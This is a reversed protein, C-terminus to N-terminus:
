QCSKRLDEICANIVNVVKDRLVPIQHLNELKKGSIEIDRIVQKLSVINMSDITSKMKHAAKWTAEWDQSNIATNLAEINLPMNDIFLQVMMRLFGEDGGGIQKLFELNYLPSSSSETTPLQSDGTTPLRYDTIPTPKVGVLTYKVLVANLCEEEIPKGVCANMGHHLYFSVEAPGSNATLAVIPTAAAIPDKLSRIERTAQVGDMVPMHIDMFVLAYRKRQVAMVADLGNCVVDVDLGKSEILTKALQQNLEVDEVLLVQRGKTEKNM